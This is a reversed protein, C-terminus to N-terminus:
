DSVTIPGKGLIAEIRLRLSSELNVLDTYVITNYQRADFHVDPFTSEHCIWIVQRGLGLMFGAEFYVGQRQGTFDAVMFKSGRIRAIIEDDIRNVHQVEDIRIPLYGAGAIATKIAKKAADQSPDFWMAIFGNPSEAGSQDLRELEQWGSATIRCLPTKDLTLEVSILGQEKLSDICFQAEKASKGCVVAYDNATDIAVTQGPFESLKAIYRLLINLKERVTPDLTALSPQLSLEDYIPFFANDRKGAGREALTRLFFSLKYRMERISSDSFFLEMGPGFRFKGCVPCVVLTTGSVDSDQYCNSTCIPCTGNSPFRSANSESYM